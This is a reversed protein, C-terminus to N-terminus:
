LFFKCSFNFIPNKCTNLKRVKARGTNFEWYLTVNWKPFFHYFNRKCSFRGLPGTSNNYCLITVNYFDNALLTLIIPSFLVNVEQVWNLYKNLKLAEVPCIDCFPSHRILSSKLTEFFFITNAFVWIPTNHCSLDPTM